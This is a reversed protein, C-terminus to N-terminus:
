SGKGNLDYALDELANHVMIKEWFFQATKSIM